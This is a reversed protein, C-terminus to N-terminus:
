KGRGELGKLREELLGIEHKLNERATGEHLEHFADSFYLRARELFKELVKIRGACYDGESFHSYEQRIQAAYLAYDAETRSLVELDFDLFLLLDNDAEGDNVPLTHTITCEIYESVRTTISEPLSTEAAFEKFCNISELENDKGQPDYIWDHFFIALKMTTEDKILHLHFDLDRLMAYIHETTHYHRQPETYRSILADSWKQTTTENTGLNEALTNFVSRLWAEVSTLNSPM